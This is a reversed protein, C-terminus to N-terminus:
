MKESKINLFRNERIYQANFNEDLLEVFEGVRLNYIQFYQSNKKFKYVFGGFEDIKEGIISIPGVAYGIKVQKKFPLSYIRENETNIADIENKLIKIEEDLFVKFNNEDIIGLDAIKLNADENFNPFSQLINENSKVKDLDYKM